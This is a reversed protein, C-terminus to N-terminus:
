QDGPGGPSSVRKPTEPRKLMTLCRDLHTRADAIKRHGDAWKKEYVAIAERLLPEADAPNNKEILIRGLLLTSDATYVHGEPLKRRQIMLAERCHEEAEDYEGRTMLLTALNNLFSALHPHDSGLLKRGLSVAKRSLREAEVNEGQSALVLSLNHLGIAVAPHEEGFVKRRIALAERFLSESEDYRGTERMLLALNNLVVAVRPHEEGLLERFMGLAEHYFREAEAYEGKHKLVAALNTLTDAVKKHPGGFVSRRIDLARRYNSEAEELRGMRKLVVGLNNMTEAVAPHEDGLAARRIALSERYLQEAEDYDGKARSLVGLNNLSEGVDPADNGLERHRIALAATLHREAAAYRGLELYTVGITTRVSAEADPQEDLAGANIMRTAEDLLEPVTTEQKPTNNPDVWALMDQLFASAREAKRAEKEALQRARAEEHRKVSVYFFAGFLIVTVAMAAIVAAKNRRIFKMGRYGLTDKRASVPLGELHRRIDESFNEVSAYRRQPEKRLATLIIADLDGALRRRLKRPPDGCTESVRVLTTPTFETRDDTGAEELRRIATSPKEPDQECISREIEHPLRSKLRYPRHGTLLEYLVVGLSYVDSATTIAEGRIQEPSAYEPTM